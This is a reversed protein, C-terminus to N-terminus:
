RDALSKAYGRGNGLVYGIQRSLRLSPTEVFRSMLDAAALAAVVTVLITAAAMLAYPASAMRLM